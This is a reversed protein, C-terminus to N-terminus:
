GEDDDDDDDGDDDDDDDGVIAGDMADIEVDDGDAFDLEYTMRDEDRDLEWAELDSASRGAARLAEALTIYGEPEFPYDFPGEDGEAEVLRGSTALLELEVIAGSATRVEVEWEVYGDENEREADVVTGPVIARAISEVEAPVEGESIDDDDDFDDEDWPEDDERDDDTEFEGTEADIEIEVEGDRGTRLVVEWEWRRSDEDREIEWEVVTSTGTVAGRAIEIARQLTLLGQGVDLDDGEVPSECEVERVRGTEVEIEIEVVSGSLRLVDVEFVERGREFEKESALIRGGLLRVALDEAERREVLARESTGFLGPEGTAGDNGCAAVLGFVALPAPLTRMWQPRNIEM